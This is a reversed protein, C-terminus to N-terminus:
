ARVLHAGAFDHVFCFDMDIAALVLSRLLSSLLWINDMGLDCLRHGAISLGAMM